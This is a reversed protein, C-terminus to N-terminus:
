QKVSRSSTPLTYIVEGPRTYHLAERAEHEVADPDSSLRDVHGQLHRNEQQLQTMQLHLDELQSRKSRYALVGNRGFVVHYGLLVALVIVACTAIRRRAAFVAKWSRRLVSQTGVPAQKRGRGFMMGRYLRM